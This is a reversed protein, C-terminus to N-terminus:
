LDINQIRKSWSLVSIELDVAEWTDGKLFFTLRYDYGRDLFEQESYAYIEAFTRLRALMDALNVRIVDKGTEKHTVTLIADDEARDHYLIRSTMFDVHAMRGVGESADGLPRDETNWAVYPTYIATESEDVSNDYRLHLNRDIIAFDYDAVDVGEPRDIERLVVNIHKTDRVLSLTDSVAYLDSTTIWRSSMAHWLTDLPLGKHEVRGDAAHELEVSLDEMKGAEPDAICFKAKEGVQTEEVEKQMCTGGFRYTGAPLDLHMRYDKFRLPASGPLNAESQKMVFNGDTDFVYVTIGGVYDAFMDVRQLNYDYRFSLYVGSDCGSRDDYIWDTCSTNFVFMSSYLLLRVYLLIRWRIIQNIEM